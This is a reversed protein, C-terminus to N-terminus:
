VVHLSGVYDLEQFRVGDIMGNPYPAYSHVVAVIKPFKKDAAAFIDASSTERAM